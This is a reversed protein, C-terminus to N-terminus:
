LYKEWGREAYLRRNEKELEERDCIRLGVLSDIATKTLPITRSFETIEARMKDSLNGLDINETKAFFITDLINGLEEDSMQYASIGLNEVANKM